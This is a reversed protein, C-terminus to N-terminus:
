TALQVMGSVRDRDTVDCPISLVETGTAALEAQAEALEAEDRACIAIRCGQRAFERALVFGLGRSGGTILAVQGRLDAARRRGYLEKGVLALGLGAGALLAAQKWSREERM